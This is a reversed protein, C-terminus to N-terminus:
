RRFFQETPGEVWAVTAFGVAAVTGGWFGLMTAPGNVIPARIPEYALRLQNQWVTAATGQVDGMQEVRDLEMDLIPEAAAIGPQTTTMDATFASGCNCLSGVGLATRMNSPNERTFTGDGTWYGKSDVALLAETVESDAALLAPRVAMVVRVPMISVGEPVGVAFEPQNQDLVTGAGGGTIGTAFAGVTMIRGMGAAIMDQVHDAVYAAGRPSGRLTKDGVLTELLIKWSM